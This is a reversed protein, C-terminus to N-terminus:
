KLRNLRIYERVKSATNGVAQVAGRLEQETIGLSQCWDRVEYDQELNVRDRDARGTKAKDDPM